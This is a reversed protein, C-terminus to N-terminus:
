NSDIEKSLKILHLLQNVFSCEQFYTVQYSFHIMSPRNIVYPHPCSREGVTVKGLTVTVAAMEQAEFLM